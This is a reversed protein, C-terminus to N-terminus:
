RCAAHVRDLHAATKADCRAAGAPDELERLVSQISLTDLLEDDRVGLM